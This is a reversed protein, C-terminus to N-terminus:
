LFKINTRSINLRYKLCFHEKLIDNEEGTRLLKEIIPTPDDAPM